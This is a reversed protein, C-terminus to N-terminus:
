KLFINAMPVVENLPADKHYSLYNAGCNNSLNSNFTYVKEANAVKASYAKQSKAYEPLKRKAKLDYYKALAQEFCLSREILDFTQGALMKSEDCFYESKENSTLIMHSTSVIDTAEQKLITTIKNGDKVGNLKKVVACQEYAVSRVAPTQSATPNPQVTKQACAFVLFGSVAIFIKKM